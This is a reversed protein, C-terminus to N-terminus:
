VNNPRWDFPSESWGAHICIAGRPAIGHRVGLEYFVNANLISIDAVVLDATVLEFFMDKRIDGEGKEDTARFPLCGAEHLAPSLLKKYVADFDVKLAEIADQGEASAEVKPRNQVDKKGFPMVVFVRRLANSAAVEYLM